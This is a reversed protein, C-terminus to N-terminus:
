RMRELAHELRAMSEARQAAEVIARRMEVYAPYRICGIDEHLDALM